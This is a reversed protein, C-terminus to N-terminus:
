EQSDKRTCKDSWYVTWYQGSRDRKRCSMHARHLADEIEDAGDQWDSAGAACGAIAIAIADDSRSSDDENLLFSRSEFVSSEEPVFLKVDDPHLLSPHVTPIAYELVTLLPSPDVFPMM